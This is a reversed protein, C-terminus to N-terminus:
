QGGNAVWAALAAIEEATLKDTFGPMSEKGKEIVKTVTALAAKPVRNHCGSLQCNAAFLAKPDLAVTTTTPAATTTTPAATTTTPAATTSTPAATTTTPAATTPPAATTSTAATTSGCSVVVLVLVVLLAVSVVSIWLSNKRM